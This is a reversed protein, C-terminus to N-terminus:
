FYRLELPFEALLEYGDRTVVLFDEVRAGGVGDVYVGPEICFTMGPEIVRDDRMLDPAELSTELGVGHGIRHTLGDPYGAAIIAEHAAAHIAQMHMGPKVMELAMRHTAIVMEFLRGQEDCIDGVAFVRTLDASYGRYVAGLDVVVLDGPELKREAGFSLPNSTDPGSFISPQFAWREAGRRRVEADAAAALEIETVGAAGIAFVVAMAAATIEGARWLMAVEYSSKHLRLLEFGRTVDAWEASPYRNLIHRYHAHPLTNFGVIGLRGNPPFGGDRLAAEISAEGGQTTLVEELGSEIRARPVDFGFATLLTPARDPWVILSADGISAIHDSLYRVNAPYGTHSYFLLANLSQENMLQRARQRRSELESQIDNM